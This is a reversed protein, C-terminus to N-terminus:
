GEGERDLYGRSWAGENFKFRIGDTYVAVQLTHIADRNQDTRLASRLTRLLESLETGTVTVIQM